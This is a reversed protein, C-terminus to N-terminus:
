DIQESFKTAKIKGQETLRFIKKAGRYEVKILGAGFLYSLMSSVLRQDLSVFKETEAELKTAMKIENETAGDPYKLLTLLVAELIPHTFGSLSSTPNRREIIKLASLVWLAMGFLAGLLSYVFSSTLSIRQGLLYGSFMGIFVSFVLTLAPCFALLMLRMRSLSM